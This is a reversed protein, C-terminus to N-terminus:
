AARDKWDYWKMALPVFWPNGRYLPNTPFNLSDFATAGEAQGLIKAAAKGGLYTGMPLGSFCYGMAYHVGDQAGVHPFLDFTGACRGTWARHLPYDALEPFSRVLAAKLRPAFVNPDTSLQGTRGCYILRTEDPSRRWSDVNFNCDIYTRHKPLLKDMLAKPLEATATIFANFPIVRRQTYPHAPGSYGNTAILVDRAILDGRDTRLSVEGERKSEVSLV